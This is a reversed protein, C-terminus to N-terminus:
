QMRMSWTLTCMCGSQKVKPWELKCTLNSSHCRQKDQYCDGTRQLHASLIYLITTTHLLVPQRQHHLIVMVVMAPFLTWIQSVQLVAVRVDTAASDWVLDQVLHSLVSKMVPFPVMEFYISLVRCAGSVAIVRVLM